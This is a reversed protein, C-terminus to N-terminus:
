PSTYFEIVFFERLPVQQWLTLNTTLPTFTKNVTGRSVIFLDGPQFQTSFQTFDYNVGECPHQSFYYVLECSNSVIHQDAPISQFLAELGPMHARFEGYGFVYGPEDLYSTMRNFNLALLLGAVLLTAARPLFATRRKWVAHYLVSIVWIVSLIFVLTLYRRIGYDTVQM